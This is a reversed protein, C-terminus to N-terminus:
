TFCTERFILSSRTERISAVRRGLFGGSNVMISMTWHHMESGAFGVYPVVQAITQYLNYLAALEALRRPRVIAASNVYMGCYPDPVEAYSLTVCGQEMGPIRELMIGYPRGLQLARNRAGNIFVSVMRAAERTKRQSLMPAMVPVTMATLSLVIVMVILMEVLTVGRAARHASCGPARGQRDDSPLTWHAATRM